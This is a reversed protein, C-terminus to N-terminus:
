RSMAVEFVPLMRRAKQGKWEITGDTGKFSELANPFLKRILKNNALLDSAFAIVTCGVIKLTEPQIRLYIGGVVHTTIAPQGQGITIFLTDGDDDYTIYVGENFLREALDLNAKSIQEGDLPTPKSEM